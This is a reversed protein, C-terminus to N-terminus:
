LSDLSKCGTTSPFAIWRWSYISLPHSVLALGRPAGPYVCLTLTAPSRAALLVGCVFLVGPGDKMPVCSNLPDKWGLLLKPNLHEPIHNFCNGQDKIVRTFLKNPCANKFFGMFSRYFMNIVCFYGQEKAGVLLSFVQKYVESCM